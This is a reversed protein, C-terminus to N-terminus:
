LQKQMLVLDLWQDWKRGAQPVRGAEAFGMAAHFAVAGPNAGSIGAVLVHVEERRAVEELCAMLSQGLGRRQAFPALQISHEKTHRYGSGGRFAGYTAFGCVQGAFDAVLFRPGREEITEAIQEATKEESAFTILTDLIMRNTIEAIEGADEPRAQRIARLM